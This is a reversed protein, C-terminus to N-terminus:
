EGSKNKLIIDPWVDLQAFWDHGVFNSINNNEIIVNDSDGRQLTTDILYVMRGAVNITNETFIINSTVWDHISNSPYLAGLFSEGVNTFTNRTATYYGGSNSHTIAGESHGTITSNIENTNEFINNSLYSNLETESCYM